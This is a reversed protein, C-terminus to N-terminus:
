EVVVERSHNPSWGLPKDKTTEVFMWKGNYEVQAIAHSINKSYPSADILLVRSNHGLSGLLSALLTASDECDAVIQGTEFYEAIQRKPHRILEARYPDRTYRTKSRVWATIAKIEGLYDREAVKYKRVIAEAVRRVGVDTVGEHLQKALIGQVVGLNDEISGQLKYQKVKM